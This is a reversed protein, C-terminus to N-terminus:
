GVDVVVKGVIGDQVAAHAGAVDGFGFHHVPLGADAGARLAGDRLADTITAAAVLRSQPPFTYLLIFHWAINLAMTSRVPITVADGGNNAYCVVQAGMAAVACDLVANQAPSVEVIIDIGDPCARRLAAAADEERYNVVHHAGAARALTAKEASSVTTLVTAGAWRALQITANGVAGAGGAALVSVGALAGPALREPGDPRLTLARHATVFPVGLAAGLEFSAADPLPYVLEQPLVVSEQLTGDLRKFAVLQVWVRQGPALTSVGPGAAEVVGAGDLGAVQHRGPPIPMHIAGNRSKWDTPNVGSLVMRVRVEGPGPEAADPVDVQELVDLTGTTAYGVARM